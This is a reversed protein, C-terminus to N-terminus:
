WTLKNKRLNAKSVGYLDRAGLKANEPDHPREDLEGNVVSIAFMKCSAHINNRHPIYKFCNFIRSKKSFVKLVPQFRSPYSHKVFSRVSIPVGSEDLEDVKRKRMRVTVKYATWPFAYDGKVMFVRRMLVSGIVRLVALMGASSQDSLFSMNVLRSLYKYYNDWTFYRCGEADAISYLEHDYDTDGDRPKKIDFEM